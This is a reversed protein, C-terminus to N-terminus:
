YSSLKKANNSFSIFSNLACVPYANLASPCLRTRACKLAEAFCDKDGDRLLEIFNQKIGRLLHWM